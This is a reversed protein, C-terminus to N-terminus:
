KTEECKAQEAGPQKTNGGKSGGGMINAPGNSMESSQEGMYIEIDAAADGVAGMGQNQAQTLSSISDNLSIKPAEQSM